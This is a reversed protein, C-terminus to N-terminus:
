DLSENWSKGLNLKQLFSNFLKSRSTSDELNPFRNNDLENCLFNFWQKDIESELNVNERIYNKHVKRKLIYLNDTWKNDKANISFPLIDDLLIILGQDDRLKYLTSLLVEYIYKKAAYFDNWIITDKFKDIDNITKELLELANYLSLEISSKLENQFDKWYVLFEERGMNSDNKNCLNKELFKLINKVEITREHNEGFEYNELLFEYYKNTYKFAKLYNKENVYKNSLQFLTTAIYVELQPITDLQNDIQIQRTKEYSSLAEVFKKEKFYNTGMNLNEKIKSILDDSNYTAMYLMKKVTKSFEIVLNPYRAKELLEIQPEVINYDNNAEEFKGLNYKCVIISLKSFLIIWHNQPLEILYKKLINSYISFLKEINKNKIFPETLKDIENYANDFFSNEDINNNKILLIIIEQYSTIERDLNSQFRYNQALQMLLICQEKEKEWFKAIEIASLYYEESKKLDNKNLPSYLEAMRLYFSILRIEKEGLTKRLSKIVKLFIGEAKNFERLQLYISALNGEVIQTEIHEPGIIKKNYEIMNIYTKKASVYDLTYKYNAALETNLEYIFEEPILITPHSLIEETYKIASKRGNISSRLLMIYLKNYKFYLEDNGINLKIKDLILEELGSLEFGILQSLQLTKEKDFNSVILSYYILELKDYSIDKNEEKRFLSIAKKLSKLLSINYNGIKIINNYFLLNDKINKSNEKKFSNIIEDQYDNVENKILNTYKIVEVLDGYIICLTNFVEISKLSELLKSINGESYRNWTVERTKRYINKNNNFYEALKQHFIIRDDELIEENIVEEIIRHYPKMLMEGDINKETFIDQIHYYMKSFISAPLATLKPYSTNDREYMNLIKKDISLIDIIESESLGDKSASIFGLTLSLLEDKVDHKKIINKFFSKILEKESEGLESKLEDFNDESKWEKAIEFALRLYLPTKDKAYELILNEQKEQLTRNNETLWINLVEKNSDKLEKLEYNNQLHKLQNYYDTYDKKDTKTEDYLCSFVIKVNDPIYSLFIELSDFDNFQDVADIFITLKKGYNELAKYFQKYFKQNDLEINLKLKDDINKDVIEWYIHEYTDRPSTTHATTGIFRYIVNENKLESIASAMVSTKGIGSKGYLLYFKEESDKIVFDKINDIETSRGITNLKQKLFKKQEEIDIELSSKKDFNKIENEIRKAFEYYIDNCFNKLYNPMNQPYEYTEKDDSFYENELENYTKVDIFKNPILTIEKKNKTLFTKLNKLKQQAKDSSEILEEDEGQTFERQYVITNDSNAKYQENIAYIIEQETASTHFQKYLDIDSKTKEINQISNKLTKEIFRWIYDPIKKKDKLFYKEEKDNRDQIYWEKLLGKITSNKFEYNKAEKLNKQLKEKKKKDNEEKVEKEWNQIAKPFDDELFDYDKIEKLIDDIFIEPNIYIPLPGWGYRQGLLILLNPKPEYSCRKVENLCYLMTKNDESSKETIGWRLDVPQFSFGKSNCLKKLRPFVLNQLANREKLFDKFTSSIFFKITKNKSM